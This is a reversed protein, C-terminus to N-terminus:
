KILTVKRVKSFSLTEMKVLYVGSNLSEASWVTTHNGAELNGSVLTAIERGVVDFVRISVRSAEPLGFALRTAANFPNPFNQSLSYVEPIVTEDSVSAPDPTVEIVFDTPVSYAGDTLALQMNYEGESGTPPTWNFRGSGNGFDVIRAAYPLTRNLELIRLRQGDADSGQIDFAIEAGAESSVRDPMDGWEPEQGPIAIGSLPITLEANNPDNSFITLLGNYEGDETPTFYATLNISSEPEVVLDGGLYHNTIQWFGLYDTEGDVLGIFTASPPQLANTITVGGAFDNADGMLSAVAQSEGTEPNVNIVAMQSNATSAFLYLIFGDLNVTWTAMGYINANWSRQIRVVENGERDIGILDSAADGVWLLQRSEDWTLARCPNLPGAFSTVLDGAPTFGYITQGDGGWLLQGDWALDRMGWVSEEFQPFSGTMEGDISFVYIMNEPAGNVGGSVYFHEGDFEVGSLRQDNALEGVQIVGRRDWLREDTGVSFAPNSATINDIVLDPFGDNRISFDWEASNGLIVQGFDHATDEEAIGIVPSDGLASADLINFNDGTTYIYRGVWLPRSCRPELFYGVEVPNAPDSADFIHIGDLSGNPTTDGIGAAVLSEQTEVWYITGSEMETNHGVERLDAPDSIDIVRLGCDYSSGTFVYGGSVDISNIVNPFRISDIVDWTQNQNATLAQLGGTYCAAYLIEGVPALGFGFGVVPDTFLLEPDTPDTIDIVGFGGRDVALYLHNGELRMERIYPPTDLTAILQPRAPDSVDLVKVGRDRLGIFVYNESAVLQWIISPANWSGVVRPNTRDSIDVSRFVENSAIYANDGNVAVAECSGQIRGALELGLHDQALTPLAFLLTMLISLRVSIAHM